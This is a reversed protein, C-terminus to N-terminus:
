TICQSSYTMVEWRARASHRARETERDRAGERKKERETERELMTRHASTSGLVHTLYGRTYRPEDCTSRRINSGSHAMSCLSPEHVHLLPLTGSLNRTYMCPQVYAHLFQAVVYVCALSRTHTCPQLYADWTAHICALAHICRM